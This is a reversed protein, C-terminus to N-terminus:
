LMKLFILGWSICFCLFIDEPLNWNHLVKVYTIWLTPKRKARVTFPGNVLARGYLPIPSSHWASGPRVLISLLTASVPSPPLFAWPCMCPVRCKETLFLVVYFFTHILFDNLQIAKSREVLFYLMGLDIIYIIIDHIYTYTYIYICIYLNKKKPSV